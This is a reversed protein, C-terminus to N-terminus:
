INSLLKHGNKPSIRLLYETEYQGNFHQEKEFLAIKSSQASLSHTLRDFLAWSPKNSETITTEIANIDLCAEQM